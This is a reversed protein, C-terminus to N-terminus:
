HEIDLDQYDSSDATNLSNVISQNNIDASESSYAENSYDTSVSDNLPHKQSNNCASISFSLTIALGISVFRFIDTRKM